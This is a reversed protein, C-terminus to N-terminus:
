EPKDPATLIKSLLALSCLSYGKREFCSFNSRSSMTGLASTTPTCHDHCTKFKDNLDKPRDHACHAEEARDKDPKPNSISQDSSRWVKKRCINPLM